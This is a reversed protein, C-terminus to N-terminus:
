QPTTSARVDLKGTVVDSILRTRYEHILRVEQEHTAKTLAIKKTQADLYDVVRFQEQISPLPAGLSSLRSISLNGQTNIPASQILKNRAAILLYYLYKQVVNPKPTLGVRSDPLCADFGLLAVDGINAAIAMLLTGKSFLRSIGLGKENLTQTFQDIVEDARAIDGTQVFPISGEYLSADNRPRFNFRGRDIAALGRLRRVKWHTPIDGLWDIGSPKMPLDPNMGRTVAQNIIAQRQEELLAIMRRRADIFRNIRDNMTDLFDAISRQKAFPPLVIPISKFDEYRM